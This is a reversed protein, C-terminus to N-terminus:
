KILQIKEALQRDGVRLRVFYVGSGATLGRDTRGDWVVSHRGATLDGAVLARVQHGAIDYIGLDVRRAEPLDFRLTTSPNFPNPRAPHLALVTPVPSQAPRDIGTTAGTTFAWVPGTRTRQGDDVTVYWEYETDPSLDPWVITAHSGSPVSTTGIVEWNEAQMDYPITFQSSDDVEFQDLTPSYTFVAIENQSPRFEM